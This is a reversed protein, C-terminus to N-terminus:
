LLCRIHFFSNNEDLTFVREPMQTQQLGPFWFLWYYNFLSQLPNQTVYIQPINLRFHLKRIFLILAQPTQNSPHFNPFHDTM